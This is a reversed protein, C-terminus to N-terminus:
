LKRNLIGGIVDRSYLDPLVGGEEEALEIFNKKVTHDWHPRLGSKSDDYTDFINKYHSEMHNRVVDLKRRYRAKTIGLTLFVQKRFDNQGLKPKLASLLRLLSGNDDNFDPISDLIVDNLAILEAAIDREEGEPIAMGGIDWKYARLDSMGVGYMEQAFRETKGKKKKTEVTNQACLFKKIWRVIDFSINGNVIGVGLFHASDVDRAPNFKSIKWDDGFSYNLNNIMWENVKEKTAKAVIESSNGKFGLLVDDGMFAMRVESFSVGRFYPCRDLTVVWFIFNCISNLITTDGGGSNM